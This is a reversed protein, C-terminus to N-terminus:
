QCAVEGCGAVHAAATVERAIGAQERVAHAALSWEISDTLHLQDASTRLTELSTSFQRYIDRHSEVYVRGDVVALLVPEYVIEGIAGVQVREFLAPIDDPHLRIWDHTQHHYISGPSNTGHIGVGPLSLGFWRDGLPNDPGLAVRILPKKGERQM